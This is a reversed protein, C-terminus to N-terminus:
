KLTYQNSLRGGDETYRPTIGIRGLNNLRHLNRSATSRSFGMDGALTKVSIAASHHHGGSLELLYCYLLKAAPPVPLGASLRYKSLDNM